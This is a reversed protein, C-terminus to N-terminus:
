AAVVLSCCACAPHVPIAHTSWVPTELEEGHEDRAACVHLTASKASGTLARQTSRMAQLVIELMQFSSGTFTPAGCGRPQVMAAPEAPPIPLSADALGHQLCYWCGGRGPPLYAVGGGWGGETAWLSLLPIGAASSLASLLAGLGIEASADILLDTDKMMTSLVAAESPRGATLQAPADGIQRRYAVASTFPYEQKIAAALYESKAHGVAGLGYPWRVINGAEVADFDLMRLTGVQARALEMALPAGLAGLGVVSVTKEGLGALDPIRACLDEAALREGRTVYAGERRGGAGTSRWRVVFLWGAEQEGQRVEEDLVLGLISIRGNTTQQWPPQAARPDVRRAAAILERADRTRPLEALRVWVGDLTRGDFRAAFPGSASARWRRDGEGGPAAAVAIVGARVRPTLPEQAGVALRMTGSAIEAPIGLAEEPLFVATGAEIFYTTVPEGQPAEGAHLEGGGLALLGLLHPVREAVLWAATDTTNWERTSRDLLCLNGEFPNQHRELALGLAYVEPRLYPYSDPFVVRLRLPQADHTLEVDIVLRASQALESEQVTAHLGRRAFEDMEYAVREPLAATWSQM